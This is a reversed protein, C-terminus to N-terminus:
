VVAGNHNLYELALVAEESDGHVLIVEANLIVTNPGSGFQLCVGPKSFIICLVEVFEEKNVSKNDKMKDFSLHEVLSPINKESVNCGLFLSVKGIVAALDKKM